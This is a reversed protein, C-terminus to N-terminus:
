LIQSTSSDVEVRRKYFENELACGITTLMCIERAALQVYWADKVDDNAHFCCKDYFYPKIQKEGPQLTPEV